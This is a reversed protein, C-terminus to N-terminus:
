LIVNFKQLDIGEVLLSYVSGIETRFKRSDKWDYIETLKGYQGDVFVKDGVTFILQMVDTVLRDKTRGLVFVENISETEYRDNRYHWVITTSKDKYGILAQGRPWIDDKLRQSILPVVEANWADAGFEELYDFHDKEPNSDLYEIVPPFKKSSKGM